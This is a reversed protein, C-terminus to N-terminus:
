PRRMRRRWWLAALLLAPIWLFPLLFAVVVGVANVGTTLVEWGSRLAERLPPLGDDASERDPLPERLVLDFPRQAEVITDAVVAGEEDIPVARVTFREFVSESAVATTWLVLREGVPLVEIDRGSTPNLRNVFDPAGSVKIDTLDLNGANVITLCLVYSDGQEPTPGVDTFCEEATGSEVAHLGLRVRIEPAPVFERFTIVISSLAVQDELTRLQGRLRELSTERALLESELRAVTNISEADALLERLRIVSTETTAIQSELDVIRETVDDSTVRANRVTGLESLRDLTDQFFEAPVKLSMVTAAGGLEQGSVFGGRSEVIARAQTVASSVDRTDIALDGVFIVARGLNAPNNGAPPITTGTPPVTTTPAATVSPAATTPPPLTTSLPRPAATTAPSDQLGVLNSQGARDEASTLYNMLGGLAVVLVVAVGGYRVLGRMWSRRPPPPPPEFVPVRELVEEATVHEIGHELHSGWEDLQRLLDVKM